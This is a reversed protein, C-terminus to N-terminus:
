SHSFPLIRNPEAVTCGALPLNRSFSFGSDSSKHHTLQGIENEERATRRWRKRLIAVIIACIAALLGFRLMGLSGLSAFLAALLALITSLLLLRALLLNVFLAFVALLNTGILPFVPLLSADLAAAILAHRGSLRAAGAVVVRRRYVEIWALTAFARGVALLAAFSPKLAAEFPVSRGRDAVDRAFAGLRRGLRHARIMM